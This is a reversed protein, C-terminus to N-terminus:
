DDCGLFLDNFNPPQEGANSIGENIADSARQSDTALKDTAEQSEKMNDEDIHEFQEAPNKEQWKQWQEEVFEIPTAM